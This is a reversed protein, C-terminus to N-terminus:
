NQMTREIHQRLALPHMKLRALTEYNLDVVRFGLLRLIRKRLVQPGTLEKGDRSYHEPVHILLVTCQSRDVQSYGRKWSCLTPHLVLDLLFLEIGPLDPLLVSNSTQRDKNSLLDRLLFSMSRVRGDQWVPRVASRPLLPGKYKTPCELTLAADLAQLKNKNLVLSAEPQPQAMSDEFLRDLFNPNFVRSVFNLPHKQLYICYLLTNLADSPKFQAFKSDLNAELHKWFVTANKPTYNLHGFASMYHTIQAPTLNPFKTFFAAGSDLIMESRHRFKMIHAM